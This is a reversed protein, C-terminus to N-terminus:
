LVPVQRATDSAGIGAVWAVGSADSAPRGMAGSRSVSNSGAVHQGPWKAPAFM